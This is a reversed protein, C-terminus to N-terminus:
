EYRPAVTPEVKMEVQAPLLVAAGAGACLVVSIVVFALTDYPSTQYLLARLVQALELAAVLGLVGRPLVMRMINEMQDPPLASRVVIFGSNGFLVLSPQHM